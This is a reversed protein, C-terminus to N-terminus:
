GLKWWSQSAVPNVIRAQCALREDPELKRTREADTRENLGQAGKEIRVVCRGCTGLGGCESAIEVGLKRAHELISGRFAEIGTRGKRYQTFFVRGM